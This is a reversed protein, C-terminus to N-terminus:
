IYPLTDNYMCYLTVNGKAGFALFKVVLINNSNLGFLNLLIGTKFGIYLTSLIM